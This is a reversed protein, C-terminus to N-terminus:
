PRHRLSVIRESEMSANAAQLAMALSDESTHRDSSRNRLREDRNRDPAASSPVRGCVACNCRERRSSGVRPPVVSLKTSSCLSVITPSAPTTSSASVGAKPAPARFLTLTRIGGGASIRNCCNTSAYMPKVNLAPVVDLDDDFPDCHTDFTVKHNGCGNCRLCMSSAMSWAAHDQASTGKTWRRSDDPPRSRGDFVAAILAVSVM